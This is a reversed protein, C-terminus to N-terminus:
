NKVFWTKALENTKLFDLLLKAVKLRAPMAPHTGDPGFEDNKYVLGDSKRPTTGDAWLYPGWLVLPAKVEGKAPDFNLKADGKMQAQIVWRMAFAGEYAYPEPNLPTTAYGAYIRSSLYAVRLNPYKQKAFTLDSVVNDRLVEAHKPFEGDKAPGANAQKLWMVQVQECTVGAAKLRREAETWAKKDPTSWAAATQGGQACDVVVLKPNRDPDQAALKLFEQFEQTTNSMGLSMLVIKGDPSPKGAADLPTIKALEKLAAARHADPPVNKGGGYLGGDEGKYKDQATMQDLPILGTSPKPPPPAKAGQGGPGGKKAMEKKARDLYAKEEDTLPEGRQEKQHLKQAYPWDIDGGAPPQQAWGALTLILVMTAVGLCVALCVNNRSM